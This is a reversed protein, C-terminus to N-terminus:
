PTGLHKSSSTVIGTGSVTCGIAIGANIATGGDRKGRSFSVTGTSFIGATGSVSSGTCHSVVPATLGIGSASSATCGQALETAQLGPSSGGGTGTSNMVTAAVIGFSATSSGTSSAVSGGCAIGRGNLGVGVCRDVIQSAEIGHFNSNTGVSEGNSDLVIAGLIGVGGATDVRCGQVRGAVIGRGGSVTSSCHIAQGLNQAAASGLQIATDAVGAVHLNEVVLNSSTTSNNAVGDSFGATTFTGGSFTTGGRIFGNRIRVNRRTSTLNVGTGSSSPATSSITFGNLDLTVDDASITIANGSAVTLNATLYYSGPASITFPASAIPTRAEVQDLSKMTPAPAGPPTLTGQGPLARPAVVLLCLLLIRHKM